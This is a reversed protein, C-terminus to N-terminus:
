CSQDSHVPTSAVPIIDSYVGTDQIRVMSTVAPLYLISPPVSRESM